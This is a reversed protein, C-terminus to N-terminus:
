RAYGCLAPRSRTVRIQPALCDQDLSRPLHVCKRTLSACGHRRSNRALKRITASAYGHHFGNRALGRAWQFAILVLSDDGNTYEMEITRWAQKDGQTSLSAMLLLLLVVADATNVNEFVPIFTGLSYRVCAHGNGVPSHISKQLMRCASPM